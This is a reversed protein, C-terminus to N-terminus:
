KPEKAAQLMAADIDRSAASYSMVSMRSLLENREVRGDSTSLDATLWQYRAADQKVADPVLAMGEPVIAARALESNAQKLEACRPCPVPQAGASLLFIAGEDPYETM